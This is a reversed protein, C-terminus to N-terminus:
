ETSSRHIKHGSQELTTIAAELVDSLVLLYDTDFTSIAFLSIKADALPAVLSALVGVESFAFPGHLKLMRWGHQAIEGAPVFSEQVVVSIEDTSRTISFFPGQTAWPPIPVDSALRVVSYRKPLLLLNLQRTVSM